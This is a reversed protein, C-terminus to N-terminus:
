PSVKEMKESEMARALVLRAGRSASGDGIRELFTRVPASISVNVTSGRQEAPVPKPGPRPKTKRAM